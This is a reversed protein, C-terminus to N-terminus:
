QSNLRSGLEDPVHRYFLKAVRDGVLGALMQEIQRRGHNSQYLDPSVPPGVVLVEEWKAVGDAPPFLRVLNMVDIIKVRVAASPRPTENDPSGRFSLMEVYLIQEARSAEGIAQMSLLNGERDRTRALAMADRPNIMNGESIVEEEILDMTIKDAINGRVRSSNVPIASNRDDVFVVTPRDEPEYRAPQKPQGMALYTAPAVINCSALM